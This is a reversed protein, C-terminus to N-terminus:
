VFFLQLIRNSNKIFLENETYFRIRKLKRQSGIEALQHLFEYQPNTEPLVGLLEKAFNRPRDTKMRRITIWGRLNRLRKLKGTIGARAHAGVTNGEHQRYLVLPERICLFEGTLSCLLACWWDHMFINEINRLGIAEDRLASNIMMTCGVTVNTKLLDILGNADPNKGMYEFYSPAILNLDSDVVKVDSYVCLPTEKGYEDSGAEMRKLSQWIKDEMWYDDQDCFMIYDAQIEKLMYMFNQKAGGCRGSGMYVFKDPYAVCFKEIVRDTGDGSGDDHIFCVFDECSQNVLSRLQDELYVAGNYAALLVAVNKDAYEKGKYRIM